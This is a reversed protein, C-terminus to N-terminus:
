TTKHVKNYKNILDLNYNTWYKLNELSKKNLKDCAWNWHISINDGVHPNKIFSQNNERIQEFSTLKFLIKQRVPKDFIIKRNKSVLNSKLVVFSKDKIEKIRGWSVCCSNLTKLNKPVVGTISGLYFVHFSHHPLFNSSMKKILSLIINKNLLSHGTFDAIIMKKLDEGKVKKLLNNGIWYAEVVRYDFPNTIKNAKAILRYYAFAGIFKELLKKTESKNNDKGVVYNFLKFDNEPGCLGLINPRFSYRSAFKIGDM